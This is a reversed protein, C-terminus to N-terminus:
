RSEKGVSAEQGQLVKKKVDKNTLFDKGVGVIALVVGPTFLNFILAFNNSTDPSLM